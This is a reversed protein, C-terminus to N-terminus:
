VHLYSVLYIFLYIVLYIFLVGLFLMVIRTGLVCVVRQFGDLGSVCYLPLKDIFFADCQYRHGVPPVPLSVPVGVLVPGGAVLHEGGYETQRGCHLFRTRLQQAIHLNNRFWNWAVQWWM